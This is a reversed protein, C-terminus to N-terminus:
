QLFKQKYCVIFCDVFRYIRGKRLNVFVLSNRGHQPEIEPSSSLSPVLFLLAFGRYYYLSLVTFYRCYRSGLIVVQHDTENWCLIHVRDCNLFHFICLFGCFFSLVVYLYLLAKPKISSFVKLVVHLWELYITTCSCYVKFKM